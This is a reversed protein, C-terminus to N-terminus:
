NKNGGTILRSHVHQHVNAVTYSLSNRDPQVHQHVDADSNNPSEEPQNRTTPQKRFNM